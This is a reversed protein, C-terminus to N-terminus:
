WPVPKGEQRSRYVPQHATRNRLGEGAETAQWLATPGDGGHYPQSPEEKHSKNDGQRLKPREPSSPEIREAEAGDAIHTSRNCM